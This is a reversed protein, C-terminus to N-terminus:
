LTLLPEQEYNKNTNRTRLEQESSVEGALYISDEIPHFNTYKMRENTYTQSFMNSVTRTNEVNTGTACVDLLRQVVCPMRVCVLWSATMIVDQVEPKTVYHLSTDTQQDDALLPRALDHQHHHHHYNLDLSSDDSYALVHGPSRDLSAQSHAERLDFTVRTSSHRTDLTAYVTPVARSRRSAWTVQKGAELDLHAYRPDEHESHERNYGMNQTNKIIDWTRFTRQCMGHESHERACGMNQINEPVDWTRFTRQCMGHESHERACGMNQINEPVDWTRFTRQCMGHESHETDCGMNQINEAVVVERPLVECYSQDTGGYSPPPRLLPGTPTLTAHAHPLTAHAHPLTAHAHPLTAHAHPLTAHAHPLTSHLLHQTILDPDVESESEVQMERHACTHAPPDRAAKLISPPSATPTLTCTPPPVPPPPPRRVRHRVLLGLLLLLLLVGVSAGVVVSVLAPVDALDRGLVSNGSTGGTGGGLDSGDSSGERVEAVVHATHQHTPPHTTFARLHVSPSAGKDNAAWVQLRYTADPELEGVQFIPDGATLNHGQTGPRAVRLLFVQRLGGDFGAQCAVSFGTSTQNLVSCNVPPDPKGAPVIHFVCPRTQQGILNTAWCLLTGYDLETVPTYTIISYTPASTFRGAPVDITDATNNFTWKFTDATPNAAVRCTVEADEDRAVGYTTVQGPACVPAYKIDLNIPKSIGDGEINSASCTYRGGHRRTVRQLVLSQNSLIVGATINPQLLRGNHQWTVKYARPNAQISCEFYVDDGEKISSPVLSSGLRAVAEPVYYVVLALSQELVADTAPNEARCTVTTGDDPPTPTLELTSTTVNGDSTTTERAGQVRTTGKWWTITPPPRSGKVECVLEYGRGYSLPDEPAQLTVSLPELNMDVMVAASLPTTLNTNTVECTVLTKLDSRTFPGLSLTNARTLPESPGHIVAGSARPRLMNDEPPEDMQSDILRGGLYWVVHPPPSGGLSVCTLAAMDGERYPGVVSKVTRGESTVWVSRPPVVVDLNVRTTKTPEYRFDVRCKYRGADSVRVDSLVLRAPSASVDLRARTGLVTEDVWHSGGTGPRLDYNYIPTTLNGNFWLILFVSDDAKHEFDCPLAAVGGEVARIKKIELPLVSRPFTFLWLLILHLHLLGQHQLGQHQLGQHLLGQHLLGQHLLDVRM